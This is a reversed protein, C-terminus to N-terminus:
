LPVAMPTIMWRLRRLEAGYCGAFARASPVESDPFLEGIVVATLADFVDLEVYTAGAPGLVVYRFESEDRYDEMKLFLLDKSHNALHQRAAVDYDGCTRFASAEGDLHFRETEALLANDYTVAGSWTQGLDKLQPRLREDLRQADFVFCVGKHGEAYQEV